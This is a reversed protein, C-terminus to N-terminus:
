EAGTKERRGDRAEMGGGVERKRHCWQHDKRCRTGSGPAGARSEESKRHKEHGAGNTEGASLDYSSPKSRDQM